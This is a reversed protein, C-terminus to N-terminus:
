EDLWLSASAVASAQRLAPAAFNTLACPSTDRSSSQRLITAAALPQPRSSTSTLLAPVVLCTAWASRSPNDASSKWRRYPTLVMPGNWITRAARLRSSAPALAEPRGDATTLMEETAPMLPTPDDIAYAALLPASLVM